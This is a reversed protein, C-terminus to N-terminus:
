FDLDDDIPVGGRAILWALEPSDPVVHARPVRAPSAPAEVRAETSGRAAWAVGCIGSCLLADARVGPPVRDGLDRLFAARDVESCLVTVTQFSFGDGHFGAYDGVGASKAVFRRQRTGDVVRIVFAEDMCCDDAGCSEMDCQTRQMITIVEDYEKLKTLHPRLTEVLTGNIFPESLNAAPLELPCGVPLSFLPRSRLPTAVIIALVFGGLLM